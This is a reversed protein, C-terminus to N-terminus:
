VISSICLSKAWRDLAKENFPLGTMGNSGHGYQIVTTEIMLDSWISNWKGNQHWIAHEGDLNNKLLNKSLKRM